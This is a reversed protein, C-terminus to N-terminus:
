FNKREFRSRGNMLASALGNIVDSLFLDDVRHEYLHGDLVQREIEVVDKRLNRLISQFKLMSFNDKLSTIGDSIIKIRDICAAVCNDKSDPRNGWGNKHPSINCMDRLLVYFYNLDCPRDIFSKFKSKQRRTDLILTTPSVFHSFIDRFLETCTM